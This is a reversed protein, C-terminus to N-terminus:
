NLTKKYERLTIVNKDFINKETTINQFTKRLFTYLKLADNRLFSIIGLIGSIYGILEWFM